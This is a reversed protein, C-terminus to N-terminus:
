HRVQTLEERNAAEVSSNSFTAKQSEVLKVKMQELEVKLESNERYVSKNLENARSLESL